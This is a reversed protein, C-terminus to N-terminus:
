VLTESVLEVVIGSLYFESPATIIFGSSSGSWNAPVSITKEYTKMTSTAPVSLISTVGSGSAFVTVTESAAVSAVRISIKVQQATESPLTQDILGFDGNTPTDILWPWESLESDTFPKVNAIANNVNGGSLFFSNKPSLVWKKNVCLANDSTKGGGYRQSRLKLLDGHNDYNDVFVYPHSTDPIVNSSCGVMSLLGNGFGADAVRNGVVISHNEINLDEAESNMAATVTMSGRDMRYIFAPSKPSAAARVNAIQFDRRGGHMAGYGHLREVTMGTASFPIVTATSDVTVSTGSVATVFLHLSKSGDIVNIVSLNPHLIDTMDTSFTLTHNGKTMNATIGYDATLDNYGAVQQEMTVNTGSFTVGSSVIGGFMWGNEIQVDNLVHSVGFTGSVNFHFPIVSSRARVKNFVPRDCGWTRVQTEGGLITCDTMGSEFAKTMWLAVRNKFVYRGAADYARNYITSLLQCSEFFVRYVYKQTAGDTVVPDISEDGFKLGNHDGFDFALDSHLFPGINGSFPATADFKDVLFEDVNTPRFKIITKSYDTGSPGREGRVGSISYNDVTIDLTSKFLYVGELLSVNNGNAYNIAASIAPQNDTSDDGKAGFWNGLLGGSKSVGDYRRMWYNGNAIVINVGKQPDAPPTGTKIVGDGARGEETLYVSYGAPLSLAELEAVSGVRIVRNNIATTNTGINSEATDVRGEVEDIAAQTDTATLGSTANSYPVDGANDGVALTGLEDLTLTAQQWNAAGTSADLCLWFEGTSTNIWRSLAEYGASSDDTVTPDTTATLNDQRRPEYAAKILAADPYKDATGATVEASTAKEVVGNRTETATVQQLKASTLARTDDTGTQAELTTAIELVGASLETAQQKINNFSTAASAVSALNDSELLYQPHPDPKAEHAAVAENPLDTILKADATTYVRHTGGSLAILADANTSQRVTDRSLTNNTADYAGRGIEWDVGNAHEIVYIVEDGMSLADAFTQRQRISGSLTVAGTGTTTTTQEVRDTLVLAM